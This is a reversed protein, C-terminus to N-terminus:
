IKSKKGGGYGPVGAAAAAVGAASQKRKRKHNAEVALAAAAVTDPAEKEHATHLDRAEKAVAAAAKNVKYVPNGRVSRPRFFGTGHATPLFLTGFRIIRFPIPSFGM